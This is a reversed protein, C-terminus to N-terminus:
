PAAYVEGCEFYRTEFATFRQKMWEALLRMGERESPIHGLIMLTKRFGLQAADRAYEGLQWECAEGTLVLDIDPNRLEDFVGGPTGFCLSLNTCPQDAAGCLRIHRLDAKKMFQKALERPTSPHALRFRNVAPRPGKIWEGELGFFHIQGECIMDKYKVHPHDHYRWVALGASALLEAKARTVPDEELKRDYHDYFTPEHVILFEAGWAAAERIVEPTAIMTVAVKSLETEPNGTKLTDCSKSYDHPGGDSCWLFLENMLEQINM